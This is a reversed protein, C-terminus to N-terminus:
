DNEDFSDDSTASGIGIDRASLGHEHVFLERVHTIDPLKFVKCLVSYIKQRTPDVDLHAIAKLGL